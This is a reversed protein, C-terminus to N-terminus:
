REARITARAAGHARQKGSRRAEAATLRRKAADFARRVAQYADEDTTRAEAENGVVIDCGPVGLEIRVRYHNGHRHHHHPADVLVRLSHIRDSVRVLQAARTHILATLADSPEIGHYTIQASAM